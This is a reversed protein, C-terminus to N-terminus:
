YNRILRVVRGLIAVTLHTYSVAKMSSQPLITLRIIVPVKGQMQPVRSSARSSAALSRPRFFIESYDGQLLDRDGRPLAKDEGRCCRVSFLDPFIGLGRKEKAKQKGQKLAM